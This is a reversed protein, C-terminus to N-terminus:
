TGMLKNIEQGKPGTEVDVHGPNGGQGVETQAPVELEGQLATQIVEKQEGSLDDVKSLMWELYDPADAAVATLLQGKHKGGNVTWKGKKKVLMRSFVVPAAINARKEVGGMNTYLYRFLNVTAEIDALADHANDLTISFRECLSALKYSSSKKGSLVMDVFLAIGVTDVTHYSFHKGYAGEHVKFLKKLFGVDFPINHCLPHMGRCGDVFAHIEAFLVIQSVAGRNTWEEVSYGNVEAAKPHVPVEPFAHIVKRSVENFANDLLIMGIQIIQDKDPDLGTTETDFAFFAPTM